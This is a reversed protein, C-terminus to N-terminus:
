PRDRDIFEIKLENAWAADIVKQYLSRYAEVSSQISMDDKRCTAGTGVLLCGATNEDTNGVHILIYEFNPVNQIHLMGNHIDSFKKKYRNHFGGVTRLSVPYKGSPIRTEQPVKTERYEDELGFCQFVGDVFIMSVTTENDSTIREVTIKM